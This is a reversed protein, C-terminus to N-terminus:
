EYVNGSIDKVQGTLKKEIAHLWAIADALKLKAAIIEEEVATEATTAMNAARQRLLTVERKIDVEAQIAADHIIELEPVTKGKLEKEFKSLEAEADAKATEFDAKAAEAVRELEERISDALDTQEPREAGEIVPAKAPAKPEEAKENKAARPAAKRTEAM